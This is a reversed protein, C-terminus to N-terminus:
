LYEKFASLIVNCYNLIQLSEDSLKNNIMKEIIIGDTTQQVARLYSNLDPITSNIRLSENTDAIIDSIEDKVANYLYICIISNAIKLGANNPGSLQYEGVSHKM